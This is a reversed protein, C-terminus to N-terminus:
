EYPAQVKVAVDLHITTHTCNRQTQGFVMVRLGCLRRENAQSILGREREGVVGTPMQAMYITESHEILKFQCCKLRM